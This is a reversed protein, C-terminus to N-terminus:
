FRYNVGLRAINAKLNVSHTFVNTPFSIPPTFATLNTSNASIRGFDVYLYEAKISWNGWLGAEVGGGATWGAKTNSVSGSEAATAFTLPCKGVM